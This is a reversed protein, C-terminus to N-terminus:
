RKHLLRLAATFCGKFTGAAVKLVAAGKFCGQLRQVADINGPSHTHWAKTEELRKGVKEKLKCFSSQGRLFYRNKM